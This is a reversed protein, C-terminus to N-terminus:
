VKMLTSTAYGHVLFLRLIVAMKIKMPKRLKGAILCVKLFGHDLYTAMKCDDLAKRMKRLDCTEPQDRELAQYSMNSASTDMMAIWSLGEDKEVVFKLIHQLHIEGVIDNMNGGENIEFLDIDNVRLGASKKTCPIAIVHSRKFNIKENGHSSLVEGLTGDFKSLLIRSQKLWKVERDMIELPEKVFHLKDDIHIEDLPIALPEDSLCKKALVKFPRIYRPNLKGQKGFRIVGKWPSVKLMVKDGVQIELPKCMVDAYSKQRDHAAQILQDKKLLELILKLHEEHEQKRKSHILIDDIFVIVFKDFYPKWVRNMLDMFVASANTLCFPMVQFKYHGNRTRFTTKLIDEEHVRLQHYGSRLNIKSYVEVQTKYLRQRFAQLQDSLEKMDSSALRYPARAAHAAGPILDIQFEVQRTPPIGSLDELFAELFDWVIPEDKLRKEESKDKAKKATVHALLCSMREAFVKSNKHMLHNKISFRTGKTLSNNLTSTRQTTMLSEKTRLKDKLLHVSGRIWWSMKLNLQMKCQKPTSAMASGQIMDPHGGVCKEVENSEEPFMRGCMLALEQFHQTYSVVDTGKVKLNWIKIELKKIESRPFYKDTMMKKFNLPQSKLFDNYTCERTTHKTRRRGSRSDHNDDGNKSRRNAEYKAWADAVRQAILKKIFANTMPTTTKKPSMNADVSGDQYKADRTRKLEKYKDHEHQIHMTLRDWGYGGEVSNGALFSVGWVLRERVSASVPVIGICNGRGGWTSSDWDWTASEKVGM